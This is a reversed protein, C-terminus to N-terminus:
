LIKGMIEEPIDLNAYVNQVDDHSQLLELFGLAKQAADKSDVAVLNKPRLTLEAREVEFGSEIVRERIAAVESPAVYVEIGDPTEDVDQVGEIDILALMQEESNQALKVLLQGVQSFNYSVSGPSAFKGGGREFLNKIEQATRNKNETAIQVVVAIGSPGFGEYIAEEVAEGGSARSVARDINDKPMNASKAKDIALRLKFNSEPNEGNRAAITIARALKSFLLGRKADQTEKQRHITSWKSHGSM